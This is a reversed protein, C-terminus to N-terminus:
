YVRVEGRFDTRLGYCIVPVGIIDVIMTLQLVQEKTLFQAEDVFVASLKGNKRVDARVHGFIDYKRNFQHAHTGNFM